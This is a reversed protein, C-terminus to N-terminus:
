PQTGNAPFQLSNFLTEIRALDAQPAGRDAACEVRSLQAATANPTVFTISRIRLTNHDAHGGEQRLVTVGGTDHFEYQDIVFTPSARQADERTPRRIGANLQVQTAGGTLAPMSAQMVSCWIVTDGGVAWLELKREPAEPPKRRWQSGPTAISFAGDPSTWRAEAGQARAAEPALGGLVLALARACRRM